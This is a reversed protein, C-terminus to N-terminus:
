ELSCGKLAWLLPMDDPLDLQRPKGNVNLTIMADKTANMSRSTGAADNNPTDEGHNSPM